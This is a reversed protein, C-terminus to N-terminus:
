LKKYLEFLEPTCDPQVMPINGSTKKLQGIQMALDKADGSKFLRCGEPRCVCDSALVPVGLSLAERVSLSDGDSRTARILASSLYLLAPFDVEQDIFIIKKGTENEINKIKESYRDKMKGNVDVFIFASNDVTVMPIAELIIDFGYLDSGDALRGSASSVTVFTEAYRNFIEMITQPLENKITPPIFAPLVVGNEPLSVPNFVFVVRHALQIIKKTSEWEMERSNHQTYVIKKGVLKGLKAIFVKVPHSIHIHLIDASFFCFLGSFITSTKRNSHFFKRKNYDFVSLFIDPNGNARELLRQLHVSVGGSPPPFPGILLIKKKKM